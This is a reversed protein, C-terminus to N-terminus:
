IYTTRNQVYSQYIKIFYILHSLHLKYFNEARVKAQGLDNIHLGKWLDSWHFHTTAIYKTQHIYLLPNLLISLGM